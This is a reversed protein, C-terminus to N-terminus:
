SVPVPCSPNISESQLTGELGLGNCAAGFIAIDPNLIVHVPVRKVVHAMRGKNFFAELFHDDKLFPLIRPPIGGGLYVGGTAMVKLALNGAEAGLISIFLNMTLTCLECKGEQAANAIVPTPDEAKDLREKMWAPEDAIGEAKLFRYINPIGRGSCVTEYSVHDMDQMLFSLLRIQRPTTPAFDTHGGESDQPQYRQGDWTIFAEGLGTGPALVAVAGWRDCAGQHLTHLEDRRLFPVGNAIAALDNLLTVSAVDLEAKLRQADIVWPLNTVDVRNEIVPGAVGFCADKIRMGVQELFHQVISELHDYDQSPFTQEALPTRPGEDQSYIALKTKTGGIDGALLM